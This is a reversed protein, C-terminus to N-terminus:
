YTEINLINLHPVLTLDVASGKAGILLPTNLARETLMESGQEVIIQLGLPLFLILSISAILVITKIWNYKLYKWALYIIDSM